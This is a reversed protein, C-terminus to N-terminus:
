KSCNKDAWKRMQSTVLKFRVNATQWTSLELGLSYLLCVTSVGVITALIFPFGLGGRGEGGGGFFWLHSVARKHGESPKMRSQRPRPPSPPKSNWKLRDLVTPEIVLRQEPILATVPLILSPVWPCCFDLRSFKKKVRLVTLLQTVPSSIQGTCSSGVSSFAQHPPTPLLTRLIQRGSCCCSRWFFLLLLSFLVFLFCVFLNSLCFLVIIRADCKKTCKKTTM